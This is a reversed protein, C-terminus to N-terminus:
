STPYKLMMYDEIFQRQTWDFIRQGDLTREPLPKWVNSFHLNMLAMENTRSIPFRRALALLHQQTDPQILRSDMLWLCNLFYSGNELLVTYEQQLQQYVESMSTQDWQQRFSKSPDDFPFRDDPAIFMNDQAMELLPSIPKYIHMGTDLYLIYKYRKLEYDFVRWKSFQILKSTERGDTGQFPYQQRLKWLWSMDYAHRELVRIRWKLIFEKNPTFDLAIWVIDGIWKGKTRVQELTMVARHKDKEDCCVVVVSM